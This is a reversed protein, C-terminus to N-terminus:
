IGLQLHGCTKCLLCSLPFYEEKSQFNIKYSNALPTKKFNLAKELKNSFCLACNKKKFITKNLKRM